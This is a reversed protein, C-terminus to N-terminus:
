RFLSTIGFLGLFPGITQGAFDSLGSIVNRHVVIVDNNRLPPNTQENLGQALDIRINKKTVSGDPNLRILDVDKKARGAKFGGAAMIGQNLTSNPRIAVAGPTVVEGVVSVKITEPSFNSIATQTLEAPNISTAKPVIITDGDKLGIDQAIEGSQLFKWLDVSLTRESGGGVDLRRIQIQRINATETIGGATQIAKIVTPWQNTGGEGGGTTRTNLSAVTTENNIASIIYSGPRNVEGIVGIRLPRPAILSVTIVPNRIFRNYSSALKQAADKLTLGDVSVSGVWPLNVTGDPLVTYRQELVLEPTDFSDIRVLDGSGLTYADTLLSSTATNSSTTVQSAQTQAVAPLSYIATVLASLTIGAVARNIGKLM